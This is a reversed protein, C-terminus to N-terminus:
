REENLSIDILRAFPICTGDALLLQRATEDIQKLTGNLVKYTGGDKRADPEFYVLTVAPQKDTHQMLSTVQRNLREKDYDGLEVQRDTLRAAEGIAADYGTLAAFPAFQAARASLPMQPHRKSVHHRHHIIDDYDGM